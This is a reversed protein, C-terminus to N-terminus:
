IAQAFWVIIYVGLTNMVFAIPMLIAIPVRSFGLLTLGIEDPLPSAIILAGVVPSIWKMFGVHFTSAVSKVFSPKLARTLDKSFKDRVFLFLVLDGCMAGLAGWLAVTHISVNDAIGILAVSAPGITFASTFFLGAIFSALEHGGLVFILWDIFGLQNLMVAIFIGIVIVVLDKLLEYRAQKRRM